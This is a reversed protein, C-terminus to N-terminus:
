TLAVMDYLFCFICHIEACFLRTVWFAPPCAEQSILSLVSVDHAHLACDPLVDTKPLALPSRLQCM